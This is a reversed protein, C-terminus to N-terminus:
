RKLRNSFYYIVLLIGSLGYVAKNNNQIQPEELCIKNFNYLIKKVNEDSKIVHFQLGYHINNFEYGVIMKDSYAIVKSHPAGTLTLFRHNYDAWIKNPMNKFIRSKLLTTEHKGTKKDKLREPLAGGYYKNLVQCGYCIGLIPVNQYDEPIKMLEKYLSHNHEILYSLNSKNANELGRNGFGALVVGSIPEELKHYEKRDKYNFFDYLYVKAGLEEFSYALINNRNSMGFTIILINNM